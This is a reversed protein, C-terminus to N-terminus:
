AKEGAVYVKEGDVVQQAGNTILEDGEEIGSLVEYLLGQRRGLTLRRKLATGNKVIYASWEDGNRVMEKQSLVIANENTYAQVSLDVHMGSVLMNSNGNFNAKVPFARIMPDMTMSVEAVRGEFPDSGTVEIFAKEGAKIDGIENPLVYFSAEYGNQNSVTFLPSGPQVNSSVRVNLQTIIGDIPSKVQIMEEISRLNERAVNLQTKANDYDQKSVGSERYLKEMRRFSTVANEVQIKTQQYTTNDQSFLVIIQDRKVSDGVKVNVQRVVDGIKSYATSQSRSRYEAPYKIFLSFEEAKVTRTEVPRGQRSYIQEMSEAEIDKKSCGILSYLFIGTCFFLFAPSNWRYTQSKIFKLFSKM